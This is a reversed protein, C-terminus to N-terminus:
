QEATVPPLPRPPREPRTRGLPSPPQSYPAVPEMGARCKDVAVRGERTCTVKAALEHFPHHGSM